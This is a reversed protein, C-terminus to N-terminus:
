QAAAIHFAGQKPYVRFSDAGWSLCMSKAIGRSLWDSGIIKLPGPAEQFVNSSDTKWGQSLWTVLPCLKGLSFLQELWPPLWCCLHGPPSLSAGVNAPTADAPSRRGQNRKCWLCWRAAVWREQGGPVVGIALRDPDQWIPWPCPPGAPVLEPSHLCAPASSKFDSDSSGAQSHFPFPSIWLLTSVNGSCKTQPLLYRTHLFRERRWSGVCSVAHSEGGQHYGWLSLRDRFGLQSKGGSRTGVWDHGARQPGVSQLWGSEQGRRLGPPDEPGLSWVQMEQTEQM